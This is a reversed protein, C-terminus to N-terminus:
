PIIFVYIYSVQFQTLRNKFPDVQKLAASRNWFPDPQSDPRLM